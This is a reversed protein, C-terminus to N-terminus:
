NNLYLAGDPSLSVVLREEGALLLISNDSGLDRGLGYVRVSEYGTQELTVTYGSNNTDFAFKLAALIEAHWNGATINIRTKM